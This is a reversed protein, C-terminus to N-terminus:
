DWKNEKEKRQLQYNLVWLILMVLMFWNPIQEYRIFLMLNIVVSGVLLVFIFDKM